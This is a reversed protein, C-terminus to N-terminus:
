KFPSKYSVLFAELIGYYDLLYATLFTVVGLIFVPASKKAVRMYFTNNADDKYRLLVQQAFKVACLYQLARMFLEVQECLSEDKKFERNPDLEGEVREISLLLLPICYTKIELKGQVDMLFKFITTPPEAVKIGKLSEAGLFYELNLKPCLLRLLHDSDSYMQISFKLEELLTEILAKKEKESFKRWLLPFLNKELAWLGTVKNREVEIAATMNKVFHPPPLYINIRDLSTETNVEVSVKDSNKLPEQRSKKQRFLM